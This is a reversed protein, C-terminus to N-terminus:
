IIRQTLINLFNFTRTDLQINGIDYNNRFQQWKSLLQEDQIFYTQFIEEFFSNRNKVMIFLKNTNQRVILFVGNAYHALYFFNINKHRGFWFFEEATKKLSNYTGADVLIVTKNEINDECFKAFDKM